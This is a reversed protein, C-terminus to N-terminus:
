EAEDVATLPFLQFQVHVVRSQPEPDEEHVLWILEQEFRRTADRVQQWRAESMASTLAGYHRQSGHVGRLAIQALELFYEHQRYTGEVLGLNGKVDANSWARIM